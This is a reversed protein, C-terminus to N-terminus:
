NYAPALSRIIQLYGPHIQPEQTFNINNGKFKKSHLSPFHNFYKLSYVAAGVVV